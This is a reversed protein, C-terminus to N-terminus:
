ATAMCYEPIQIDVNISFSTHGSHWQCVNEKENYDFSVVGNSADSYWLAAASPGTLITM